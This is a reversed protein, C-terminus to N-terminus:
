QRGPGTRIAVLSSYSEMLSQFFTETRFPWSAESDVRWQDHRLLHEKTWYVYSEDDSRFYLRIGPRTRTALEDLFSDRILRKKAHRAKPWPDPFLVFIKEFWVGDPVVNLFEVAEAKVLELNGLRGKEKKNLAKDLRKRMWDVGMCDEDPNEAAYAARFHGHGCGLEM